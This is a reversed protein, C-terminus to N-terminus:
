CLLCIKNVFKHCTTQNPVEPLDLVLHLQFSCCPLVATTEAVDRCTGAVYSSADSTANEDLQVFECLDTRINSLTSIKSCLYSWMLHRKTIRGEKGRVKGMIYPRRYSLQDKKEVNGQGDVRGSESMYTELRTPM